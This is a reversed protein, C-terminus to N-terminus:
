QTIFWAIIAGALCLMLLGRVWRLKRGRPTANGRDLLQHGEDFPLSLYSDEFPHRRGLKSIYVDLSLAAATVVLFVCEIIAHATV